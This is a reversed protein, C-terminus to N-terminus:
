KSVDLEMFTAVGGNFEMQNRWYKDNDKLKELIEEQNNRLEIYEVEQFARDHAEDLIWLLAMIIVTGLWVAWKIQDKTM